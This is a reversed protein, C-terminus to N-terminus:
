MYRASCLCYSLVTLHQPIKWYAEHLVPAAREIISHAAYTVLFFWLTDETHAWDTSLSACVKFFLLYLSTSAVSTTALAMYTIGTSFTYYQSSFSLVMLPSIM